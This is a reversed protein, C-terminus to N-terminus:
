LLRRKISEEAPLTYYRGGRNREVFMTNKCRYKGTFLLHQNTQRVGTIIVAQGCVIKRSQIGCILSFNSSKISHIMLFSHSVKHPRYHYFLM